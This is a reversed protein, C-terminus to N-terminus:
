LTFVVSSFSVASGTAEDHWIQYNLIDGHCRPLVELLCALASFGCVNYQDRVSRSEEWFLEADLQSLHKLLNQDHATSRRELSRAPMEHGFKPGTHSFDVGAVVLTAKDPEMIAQKLEQLFPGAKELYASRSYENLNSQCFGCLIPIITFDKGELLHHLFITQFEISHESRHAFDSDSIIEGGTARLKRIVSPENKVIGQPTQFDKDTLCFFDEVMNHGVGLLIIRSPAMYNLMQYASSYVQYGVSLDIHPAILAVIKGEPEPVPQQSALIEDLMKKLETPDDPYARGCHSCPRIKKLAFNAVIEDRAKKFRESDLLFSEDLLVLLNKVEDKGVLTGGKQRMLEMQLDSITSTGDLLAMVRYLPLSIPRGEPALGLHDQIFILQHGDQQVPIFQLDKRVIPVTENM